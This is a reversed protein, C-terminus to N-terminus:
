NILHTEVEEEGRWGGEPSKPIWPRPSTMTDMGRGMGLEGQQILMDTLHSVMVM